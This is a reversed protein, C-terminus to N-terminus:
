PQVEASIPAQQLELEFRVVWVILDSNGFEEVFEKKDKWLGGEAEVDSDPMDALREQYPMHTLRIDGVKKAGRVRPTKDWAQHVQKGQQYASIWRLATRDSWTRRTCTKKGSLLAETTWSFALIM